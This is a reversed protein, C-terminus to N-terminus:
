ANKEQQLRGLDFFFMNGAVIFADSAATLVM